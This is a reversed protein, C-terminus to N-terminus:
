KQGLKFVSGIFYYTFEGGKGLGPSAVRILNSHEKWIDRPM